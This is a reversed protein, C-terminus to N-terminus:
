SIYKLTVYALVSSVWASGLAKQSGSNGAVQKCEFDSIGLDSDLMADGNVDTGHYRSYWQEIETFLSDPKYFVNYGEKCRCTYEQWENVEVPGSIIESNSLSCVEENSFATVLPLAFLYLLKM